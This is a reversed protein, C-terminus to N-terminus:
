VSIFATLFPRRRPRAETCGSRIRAVVQYGFAHDRSQNAVDVWQKAIRLLLAWDDESTSRDALAICLEANNICDEYTVM